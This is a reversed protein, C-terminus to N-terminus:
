SARCRAVSRLSVNAQQQYRRPRRRWGYIGGILLGIPLLDGIRKFESGDAGGAPSANCGGGGGAPAPTPEHAAPRSFTPTALLTVGSPTPTPTGPFATPATTPALTLTTSPAATPTVTPAPTPTATPQPTPTAPVVTNNVLDRDPESGKVSATNTAMAVTDGTVEITVTVSAGSAIMGLDCTVTSPAESCSGKTAIASRFVGGEPLTNVVTVGTADSPGNNTAVLTYTYTLFDGIMVPNPNDLLPVALDPSCADGVGDQDLDLWGPNPFLPCNDIFDPAVDGDTDACGQDAADLLGDLDNDLGDSCTDSWGIVEPLSAANLPDSAVLREQLDPYGDNDDDPDCANGIM